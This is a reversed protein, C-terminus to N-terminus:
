VLKSVKFLCKPKLVISAVVSYLTAAINHYWIFGRNNGFLIHDDNYHLLNGQRRSLRAFFIGM